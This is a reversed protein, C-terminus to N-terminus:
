QTEEILYRRVAVLDNPQAWTAANHGALEVRVLINEAPDYYIRDVLEIQYDRLILDGERINLNGDKDVWPLIEDHVRCLPIPEHPEYTDECSDWGQEDVWLPATTLDSLHLPTGCRRCRTASRTDTATM